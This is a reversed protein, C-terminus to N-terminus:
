FSDNGLTKRVIRVFEDMEFPKFVYERVGLDAARKLRHEPTPSGTMIIVRGEPSKKKFAEIVEIGDGDLLRLDTILLDFIGEAIEVFAEQRSGVITLHCSLKELVRQCLDRVIKEDDVILLRPTGM